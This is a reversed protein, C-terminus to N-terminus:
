ANCRRFSSQMMLKLFDDKRPGLSNRKYHRVNNEYVGFIAADKHNGKEGTCQVVEHKFKATYSQSKYTQHGVEM